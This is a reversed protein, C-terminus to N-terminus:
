SSCPLGWKERMRESIQLTLKLVSEASKVSLTGMGCSPTILSLNMIKTKELGKGCLNSIGKELKQTLSEVTEKDVALSAPVIGWALVREEELFDKLQKAFLSFNDMFNYADFSVIDVKTDLIVPWDTNGCCHIGALAGEAHIAEIIENSYKIIDERKFNVYASGILALYPEDIFIIIRRKPNLATLKKIQWKVKMALVMTLVEALSPNYIIARKNEDTVTLGFSIPGTIQGKIFGEGNEKLMELFVYLGQAYEPTIAFYATDDSLCHQYCEELQKEAQETDVYITRKEQNILVGPLKESFQVYMSELFSRHPLQPWFPIQKFNSLMGRVAQAAEEHPTSGIATALFSPTFGM